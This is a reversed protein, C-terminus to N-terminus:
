RTLGVQRSVADLAAAADPSGPAFKLAIRFQDAADHWRKLGAHSNGLALHLQYQFVAPAQVPTDRVANDFCRRASEFDKRRLYASGLRFGALSDKPNRRVAEVHCDFAQEHEGAKELLRGRYSVVESLGPCIEEARQTLQLAESNKGAWSLVQVVQVLALAQQKPDIGDLVTSSVREVVNADSQKRPAVGLEALQDYLAWALRRNQEITPHVHDLFSEGGPIRHGASEELQDEILKPFDICPVSNRRAADEVAACITSTARLPCIDEDIAKVFYERAERKQGALFLAEGAEWQTLAHQSDLRAAAVFSSASEAFRQTGRFNRGDSISLKWQNADALDLESSESKFPSFDRHNSAPKVFVIGAGAGRAIACARDLSHRFHEVVGRRWQPDRHYKEPGASRDLIADVESSLVNDPRHGEPGRLMSDFCAGIRTRTVILDAVQKVPSRRKLDGYTREELFENHGEYFIFMDPQYQALEQMLHCIRYSAYSIGGCNIVQWDREPDADQLRARLWGTFSTADHYPHGFTTSGGLCFIRYTKSSKAAPFRQDNFYSLKAPNTRLIDGGAAPVFLPSGRDFGVFPDATLYRPKVGSVALLFEMVFLFFGTLLAGFVLRKRLSLQRRAPPPIKSVTPSPSSM